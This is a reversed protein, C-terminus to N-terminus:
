ARAGGQAGPHGPAATLHACARRRRAATRTTVPLAGGSVGGGHRWVATAPAPVGAGAGCGAALPGSKAMMAIKTTSTMRDARVNATRRALPWKCRTSGHFQAPPHTRMGSCAEGGHLGAAARGSKESPHAGAGGAARGSASAPTAAAAAASLSASSSCAAPCAGKMTTMGSWSSCHASFSTAAAGSCPALRELSSTVGSNTSSGASCRPQGAAASCCATSPPSTGASAGRVLGVAPLQTRSVQARM